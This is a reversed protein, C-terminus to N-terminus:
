LFKVGGLVFTRHCNGVAQLFLLRHQVQPLIECGVAALFQLDKGVIVGKHLIAPKQSGDAHHLIVATKIFHVLPDNLHLAIQRFLHLGPLVAFPLFTLQSGPIAKIINHIATHGHPIQHLAAFVNGLRIGVHHDVALCAGALFQKGLADM